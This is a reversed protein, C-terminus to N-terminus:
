MMMKAIDEATLDGAGNEGPPTYSGDSIKEKVGANVMEDVYTGFNDIRTNTTEENDTLFYDIMEMPIKKEALVDKYKAITEAREAKMKQENFQKELEEIKIQEPTKKKGTAKLVEDNILTQLNKDKWTKIGDTVRKDGYAQIYKKGEENSEVFNKVEDLNLEKKFLKALDSSKITEDIDADDAINKILEMLESKKM